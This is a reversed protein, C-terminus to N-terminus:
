RMTASKIALSIAALVESKEAGPCNKGGAIPPQGPM